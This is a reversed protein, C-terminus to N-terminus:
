GPKVGTSEKANLHKLLRGFACRYADHNKWDIFDCIHRMRRIHAAWAVPTNQVADDLQIPFLVTRKEKRERELASEVEAGVWDSEISLKSLVVLLKDHLRIATDILDRFREGTKLHEQDYWCRVGKAQLDAYLREAFERDKSSYSIFCSYFQIPSMSGVISPLYAILADPVGCGRLFVEPIKGQSHFLTDIGITSPGLHHASDLGTVASLDVKAFITEGCDVGSFDAMSLECFEFNAGSLKAVRLNAEALNAYHLNAYSLNAGTLDAHRLVVGTLNAYSLNAGTLDAHHLLAWRLDAHRLDAETLKARSLDVDSPSAEHRRNWEAVGHEGGKLLKLAKARDLKGFKWLARTIVGAM